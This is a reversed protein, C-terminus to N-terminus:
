VKKPEVRLETGGSAKPLLLELNGGKLTTEAKAPDVALSAAVSNLFLCHRADCIPTIPPM